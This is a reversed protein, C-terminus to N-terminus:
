FRGAVGASGVGILPEIELGASNTDPKSEGERQLLFLVGGTVLGVGGVIFGLTAVSTTRRVEDVLYNARASESNPAFCTNGTCNDGLDSLENRRQVAVISYATGVTAGLAGVGLSVYSATRLNSRRTDEIAPRDAAPAWSLTLPTAAAQGASVPAARGADYLGADHSAAGHLPMGHLVVRRNQGEEFHVRRAGYVEGRSELLFTHWGPNVPYPSQVRAPPLWQQDVFVFAEPPAEGGLEIQAWPIRAVL